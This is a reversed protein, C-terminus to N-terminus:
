ARLLAFLRERLSGDVGLLDLAAGATLGQAAMLARAAQELGEERGQALGQELGEQYHWEGIADAMSGMDGLDERAQEDLTIGHDALRREREGMEMKECFLAGTLSMLPNGGGADPDHPDLCVLVVQVLDFDRRAVGGEGCLVDQRLEFSLLTGRLGAPPYPLVWVSAVKRLEAYDDGAFVRGRQASVMRGVYYLARRLVYHVDSHDRQPEVNVVLVDREASGPVPVDALIDYHVKGEEGLAGDESSLGGVLALGLEARAEAEDEMHLPRESVWVRGEDLLAREVEEATAGDFEDLSYKIVRALVPSWSLIRKAPSDLTTDGSAELTRGLANRGRRGGRAREAEERAWRRGDNRAMGM